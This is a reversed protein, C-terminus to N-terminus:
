VVMNLCVPEDITVMIPVENYWRILVSALRIVIYDTWYTLVDEKVGTVTYGAISGKTLWAYKFIYLTLRLLDLM